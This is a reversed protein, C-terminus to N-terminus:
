SGFVEIWKGFIRLEDKQLWIGFEHDVDGWITNEGEALPEVRRHRKHAISNTAAETDVRLKLGVSVLILM